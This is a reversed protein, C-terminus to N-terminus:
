FATKRSLVAVHKEATKRTFHKAYTYDSVWKYQGRYVSEIYWYRNMSPELYRVEFGRYTEIIECKM